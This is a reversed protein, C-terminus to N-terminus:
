DSGWVRLSTSTGLTGSDNNIINIETIQSATNCWKAVFENRDPTNGAGATGEKVVHGIILKETASANVIFMNTFQTTGSAMAAAQYPEIETRNALTSDTAGNTSKRTPYNSGGDSNFRANSVTNAGSAEAHVKVWLYKKATITGSSLNDAAGGSLNVGSLEQWFNTGSDAEDDDCGLIVMESGSAFDHGSRSNTLEVRTIQNATNAWKGVIEKRNPATGAGTAEQEVTHGIVLKEESGINRITFTAFHDLQVTGGTSHDLGAQSHNSGDNAGNNSFRIAYNSGTDNNFTLIPYPATTGTIHLLIMLNDKAAFTGTDLVDGASGLTVRDLEKWSTQAIATSTSDDSRGQIRGGSLYTTTNAM